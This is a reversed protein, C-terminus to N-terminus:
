RSLESELSIVQFGSIRTCFVNRIFSFVKPFPDLRQGSDLDKIRVALEDGNMNPMALDSIVVDFGGNKRVKHYEELAARGDGVVKVQHGDLELFCKLIFSMTPDDEAVLVKMTPLPMYIQDDPGEEGAGVAPIQFWLTVCTGEGEVSDVKLCGGFRQMMAEVIGLGLGSGKEGKTTFFAETCKGLTEQDMGVGTDRVTAWVWGDQLGTSITITGGGPMADCANFILNTFAERLEGAIGIVQPIEAPQFSCTIAHGATQSEVKWKPETMDISSQIIQGLDVADGSGVQSFPKYFGRLRRVGEVADEVVTKLQALPHEASTKGDIMLELIGSMKSLSNNFEHAVGSTMQGLNKLRQMHGLHDKTLTIEELAKKLKQNSTELHSLAQRRSVRIKMDRVEREIISELRALSGKPLYDHAGAKMIEVAQMEGITGSVVIFPLDLNREHLIGLADLCSFNPLHYDCIVVGWEREEVAETLGEGTDVCKADVVYGCKEIHRVIFQYDEECDEIVLVDLQRDKESMNM